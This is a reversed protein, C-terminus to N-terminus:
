RWTFLYHVITQTSGAEASPMYRGRVELTLYGLRGRVWPSNVPQAEKGRVAKAEDYWKTFAEAPLGFDKAVALLRDRGAELDAAYHQIDMSSPPATKPEPVGDSSFGVIRVQSEVKKGEPLRVLVAFDTLDPQEYTVDARGDAIGVAERSPARTLDFERKTVPQETKTGVQCGGQSFM